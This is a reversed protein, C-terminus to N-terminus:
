TINKFQFTMLINQLATIIKNYVQFHRLESKNTEVGIMNRRAFINKSSKLKLNRTYKNKSLGFSLDHCTKFFNLIIFHLLCCSIM